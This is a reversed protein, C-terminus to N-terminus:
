SNYLPIFPFSPSRQLWNTELYCNTGEVIHVSFAHRSKGSLNEESYHIVSGHLLVLTGKRVVIPTCNRKDIEPMEGQFSVTNGSRVFRVHTGDVHSGACAWLCGNELTADELAIWLGIVSDPDTALFTSDQHPRVEGGIGPQKFIYMSQVPLPMKYKLCRLIAQVKDSRTWDRFEPVLDHLAHGIKNISMEKPKQLAGEEDFAGQEFFCCVKDSSALFYDDTKTAQDKTSFISITEPNFDRVIEDARAKMGLITDDAVFDPLVLYGNSVYENVQSETLMKGGSILENKSLINHLNFCLVPVM